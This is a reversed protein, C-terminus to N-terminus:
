GHSLGQPFDFHGRITFSEQEIEAFHGSSSPRPDPKILRGRWV